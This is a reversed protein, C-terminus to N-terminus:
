INICRWVVQIFRKSNLNYKLKLYLHLHPDSGSNNEVNALSESLLQMQYAWSRPDPIKPSTLKVNAFVFFDVCLRQSVILRFSEPDRYHKLLGPATLSISSWRRWAPFSKVGLTVTKM